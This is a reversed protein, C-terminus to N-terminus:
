MAIADAEQPTASVNYDSLANAFDFLSAMGILFSPRGVLFDSNVNINNEM